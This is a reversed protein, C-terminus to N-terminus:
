LVGKTSPIEDSTESLKCAAKLARALAKFAAELVHHSEKGRIGVLHLNFKGESAFARFFEEALVCPFEGAREQPYSLDSAYYARGSLDVVAMVLADDLPVVAQGFREIGRKAGLAELLAQGLVLGTDEVTHHLDVEIDGKVKCSLDFGSHKALAELMHSFFGSPTDLEAKGSGDLELTLEIETEKTTRKVSASRGM